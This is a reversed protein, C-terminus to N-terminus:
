KVLDELLMIQAVNWSNHDMMKDMTDGLKEIEVETEKNAESEIIKSAEVKDAVREQTDTIFEEFEKAVSKLSRAVKIVKHKEETSLGDLKAQSLVIFGQQAEYIKM